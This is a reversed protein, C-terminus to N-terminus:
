KPAYTPLDDDMLTTTNAYKKILNHFATFKIFPIDM